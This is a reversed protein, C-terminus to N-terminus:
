GAPWRLVAVILGLVVAVLTTAILLTRLSFRSSWRIWPITALTAAIVLVFLDPFGVTVYSGSMDTWHKFAWNSDSGVYPSLSAFAYGWRPQLIKTRMSAHMGLGGRSTGIQWHQGSVNLALVDEVFYSRVWLAILLVCAIVCTASFAIRMYRLM